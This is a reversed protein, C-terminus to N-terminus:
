LRLMAKMAATVNHGVLHIEARCIPNSFTENVNRDNEIEQIYPLLKFVGVQTVQMYNDFM